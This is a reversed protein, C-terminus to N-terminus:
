PVAPTASGVCEMGRSSFWVWPCPLSDVQAYAMKTVKELDNQAGTTIVGFMVQATCGIVAAAEGASVERAKEHKRGRTNGRTVDTTWTQRRHTATFDPHTTHLRVQEAARGGLTMCIMDQIQQTTQLLNESPLYQAFGLAATGRPVISVKLLPETHELFWRRYIVGNWSEGRL